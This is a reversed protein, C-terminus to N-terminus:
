IIGRKTHTNTRHMGERFPYWLDLNKWSYLTTFKHLTVFRGWKGYNWRLDRRIWVGWFLSFIAWKESITWLAFSNTLSHNSYKVESNQTFVFTCYLCSPSKFNGDESAFHKCVLSSIHLISVSENINIKWKNSRLPIPMIGYLSQPLTEEM